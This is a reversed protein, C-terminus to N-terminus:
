PDPPSVLTNLEGHQSPSDATFYRYSGPRFQMSPTSASKVVQNEVALEGSLEPFSSLHQALM